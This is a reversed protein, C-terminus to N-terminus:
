GARAGGDLFQQYLAEANAATIGYKELVAAAFTPKVETLAVLLHGSDRWNHDMRAAIMQLTDIVAKAEMSPLLPAVSRSRQSRALHAEVESQLAATNVKADVLMQFGGGNGKKLIGFLYHEPTVHTHHLRRAEAESLKIVERIGPTWPTSEPNTLLRVFPWLIKGLLSM